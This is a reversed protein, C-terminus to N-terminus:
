VLNRYAQYARESLDAMVTEFRHLQAVQEADAGHPM